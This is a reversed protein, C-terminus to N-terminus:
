PNNKNQNQYYLLDEYTANKLGLNKSRYLKEAMEALTKAEEESLGFSKAYVIGDAQKFGYSLMKQLIQRKLAQKEKEKEEASLAVSSQSVRLADGHSLGYTVALDYAQDKDVIGQSLIASMASKENQAKSKEYSSLYAAYGESLASAKDRKAQAISQQRQAFALGTLYEGYGSRGLGLSALAEGQKGYGALSRLHTQNAAQIKQNANEKIQPHKSLYEALSHKRYKKSPEKSKSM